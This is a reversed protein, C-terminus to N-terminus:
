INLVFVMGGAENLLTSGFLTMSVRRWNGSESPLRYLCGTAAYGRTTSYAM